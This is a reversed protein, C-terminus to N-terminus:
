LLYIDKYNYYWSPETLTYLLCIWLVLGTIFVSFMLLRFYGKYTLLEQIDPVGMHNCFAHAIFTSAFHGTRWLLFASYMGFITTYTFHFCSALFATKFDLGKRIREIMHHFHAVGFFLPCIFIATSPSFSQLLLPLMCSRFTFEESLPAVVHNRLWILNQMSDVWYMPKLYSKLSGNVLQMFLPGLFLVMTLFWPILFAESLGHIKLGMIEWISSRELIRKNISAYLFVPSVFMMIFVSVFRKKITSPHNRDYKADWVYLSSIYVVSLLFCTTVSLFCGFIAKFELEM